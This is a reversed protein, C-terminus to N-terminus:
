WQGGEPFLWLLLPAMLGPTGARGLCSLATQASHQTGERGPCIEGGRLAEGVAQRRGESTAAEGEAESTRRTKEARTQRQECRCM